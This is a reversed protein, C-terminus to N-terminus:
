LISTFYDNDNLFSCDTAAALVIAVISQLEMMIASVLALHV